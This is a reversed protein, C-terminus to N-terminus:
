AYVLGSVAMEPSIVVGYEEAGASDANVAIGVFIPVVLGIAAFIISTWWLSATSRLKLYEARYTNLLATM